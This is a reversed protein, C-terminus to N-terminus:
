LIKSAIGKSVIGPGWNDTVNCSARRQPVAINQLMTNPNSEAKM